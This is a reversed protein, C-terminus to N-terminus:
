LMQFCTQCPEMYKRFLQLNMHIGGGCSLIVNVGCENVCLFDALAGQRSVDVGKMDLYAGYLGGKRVPGWRVGQHNGTLYALWM